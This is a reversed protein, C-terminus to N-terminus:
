RPSIGHIVLPTSRGRIAVEGLSTSAEAGNIMHFVDDSIIINWPLEKTLEELRATLNVTDGIVTTDLREASGVTGLMVEGSHIGIGVTVNVGELTTLSSVIETAARVADAAERPFLAMVADGIYKDIFGHHKTICPAVVSLYSNLFRFTDTVSLTESLSTFGRIDVFLVTMPTTVAEGVRVDRISSIGLSDLFERPVFRAASELTRRQEEYL